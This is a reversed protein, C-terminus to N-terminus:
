PKYYVIEGTTEDYYLAYLGTTSNVTRVPKIFLANGINPSLNSGTANIVISNNVQSSAGAGTGIAICHNGQQFYGADTGIAIAGTLQSNSGANQGIAITNSRQIYNGANTGIAIATNGQNLGANRGIAISDFGQVNGAFLGISIANTGQGFQGAYTGIAVSNANGGTTGYGIGIGSLGARSGTGIAIGGNGIVGGAGTGIAISEVSQNNEGAKLGIAIANGGQSGYGANAGIAISNAGQSNVGSLYGLHIQSNTVRLDTLNGVSTINPQAATTLTGQVYNAIALNGLNANSTTLNGTLSVANTVNNFTFANSGGLDNNDNFQINTNSGGPQELDWPTGNAYLLNDTKVNGANLNATVNVNNANAWNTATINNANAYETFSANNASINALAVINNANAYETFNANNASLNGVVTLSSLNGVSTINPQANTLVTGAYAAYNANAVTGTINAATINSINGGDGVLAINASIINATINGTAFIDNSNVVINSSNMVVNTNINAGYFGSTAKVYNNSNINAATVAATFDGLGLVRIGDSAFTTINSTGNVSIAVNSNAYVRVNSNGNSILSTDIGTLFAGNGLYYNASVNGQVTVQTNSFNVVNSQGTVNFRIGNNYFIMEEGSMNTLQDFVGEYARLRGLAPNFLLTSSNSINYDILLNQNGTNSTFTVFYDTNTQDDTVNVKNAIIGTLQSGNGLIYNANISNGATINGEFSVTNEGIVVVNSNGNVSVAVNANAYVKVNSNGNSILSPDIGTLYYGNGIFYNSTVSNGLNANGGIINGPTSLLNSAVDFTFGPASTFNGTGDSIQIQTNAGAATGNGSVNATGQAWTLNGTGDTQLFYANSGGTIKLNSISGLRLNGAIYNATAIGGLVGNANYQLDGSYGGPVSDSTFINMNLATPSVVIENQTPSITIDYPEVVINANIESM